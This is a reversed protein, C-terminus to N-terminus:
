LHSSMPCSPLRVSQGCYYSKMGAFCIELTQLADFGTSGLADAGNLFDIVNVFM